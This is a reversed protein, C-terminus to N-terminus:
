RHARRCCRGAAPSQHEVARLGHDRQWQAIASLRRYGCLVAARVQALIAALPHRKGQNRRFDPVMKLYDLPSLSLRPTM